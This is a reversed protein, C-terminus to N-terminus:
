GGGHENIPFRRVDRGTARAWANAAASCAAPLGLEGAGGPLDATPALVHVKIDLPSDFMRSWRYDALGTERVAGRDIHLAATFVLSIADMTVGMLTSELGRPNVARGPDVAITCRTIRPKAGRADCEMLYAVISKYEYWMGLGQATGAPM